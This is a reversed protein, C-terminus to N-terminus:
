LSGGYFGDYTNLRRFFGYQEALGELRLCCRRIIGGHPTSGSYRNGTSCPAGLLRSAVSTLSYEVPLSRPRLPQTLASSFLWSLCTNASVTNFFVTSLFLTSPEPDIHPSPLLGQLMRSGAFPYDMHLEGIRRMLALDADSVPCPRYYASGRSIRLAKAQRTVSLQHSRGIM